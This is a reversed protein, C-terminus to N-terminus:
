PQTRFSCATLVEAGADVHSRHVREVADPHDILAHTSWLPLGTYLGARELETGTAGDLLLAPGEALRRAFAHSGAAAM